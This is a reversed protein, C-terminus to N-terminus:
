GDRGGPAVARLGAAEFLRRELLRNQAELNFNQEVFARGAAGMRAGAEPDRHLRLVVEAMGAEDGPEVLFGTRGDLVAEPVGGSRTGVVPLGHASAESLTAAVSEEVGDASPVNHQVLVDAERMQRYVEARPLMGRFSIRDGLGLERALRECAQRERGDGIVTLTAEPVTRALRAFARITHRVGKEPVLRSAALLKFGSRRSRAVPPEPLRIGIYHLRLKEAPAGLSLLKRRLFDSGSLVLAARAWVMRLRELFGEGVSEPASADRGGALYVLPIPREVKELVDLLQTAQWGFLCYVVEPPNAALHRALRRAHGAPLRWQLRFPERRLVRRCFANRLRSLPARADAATFLRPAPFHERDVLWQAIVGIEAQKVGQMQTYTLSLPDHYIREYFVFLPRPAAPTM